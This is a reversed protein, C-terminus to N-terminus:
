GAERPAAPYGGPCRGAHPREAVAAPEAPTRGRDLYQLDALFQEVVSAHAYTVTLHLSPPYQQRDLHWGRVQMEDGVEYVDLGAGGIAMVCMDPEGLVCLGPTAEIGERLKRATQMMTDVIREYGEEGLYNM